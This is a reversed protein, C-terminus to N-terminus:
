ERGRSTRAAPRREPGPQRGARGCLFAAVDTALRPRCRRSSLCRHRWPSDSCTCRSGWGAYANRARPYWRSESDYGASWAVPALFALGTGLLLWPSWEAVLYRLDLRFESAIHLVVDHFVLVPLGVAVLFGLAGLWRAQRRERRATRVAMTSIKVADRGAHSHRGM